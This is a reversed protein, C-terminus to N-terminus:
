IEKTLQNIERELDLADDSQLRTRLITDIESAM